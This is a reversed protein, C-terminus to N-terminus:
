ITKLLAQERGEKTFLSKNEHVWVFSEKNFLISQSTKVWGDPLMTYVSFDKYLQRGNEDLGAKRQIKNNTM